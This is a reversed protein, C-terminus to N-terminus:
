VQFHTIVKDAISKADSFKILKDNAKEGLMKRKSANEKLEIIARAMSDIDLYDVVIGANEEIFEPIGGADKFCITPVQHAAAELVVLPFADERSPLLFVDIVSLYPSIDHMPELAKFHKSLNLKELDNMLIAYELRKSDAGIWIFEIDQKDHENIVKRMILPLLDYGKRWQLTGCLGVTFKHHLHSAQHKAEQIPIIYPLFDIASDELEYKHQLFKKVAQSPVFVKNSNGLLYKIDHEKAMSTAVLALEHIYSFLPKDNIPLLKLINGTTLTNNFVIDVGAVMKMIAKQNKYVQTFGKLGARLLARQVIGPKTKQKWIYVKGLLDFDAELVGGKILLMFIEFGGTRKLANILRLLLIPAGTRSADHSIFLIKKKMTVM